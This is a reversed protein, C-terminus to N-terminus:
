RPQPQPLRAGPKELPVERNDAGVVSRGGLPEDLQVTRHHVKAIMVCIRDPWPTATVTVKVQNGSEVATVEYDACVGATFSVTLEDGEATYGDVQVNEPKTASTPADSPTDAAPARLYEPEIAPYAVTYTNGAGPARVEFLWSPVLLPRGGSAHPALGFEADEVTLSQKKPPATSAACLSEQRDKTPVPTACGGIGMRHKGPAANLLELAKEAGLVPYTEGKAPTEMRGSGAVVEGQPSVSLDTTWGFTPVGGVEDDANVLRQAGLVQSADIEADDQGLAKLVPAAAKKAAAESVPDTVPSTSGQTCVAVGGECADTGAAYRVFTWMGPAQQNVRLVPGSGDNGAGVRWADGDAVPTGGVGLAAALRAVEEKTVAGKAWYVPASDPGDPFAGDAKYVVGYPNPEGPAVGNTGGESSGGPATHDDLVLPPPTGDGAPAGATAGRGSGGTADAALYAGGGGVLLVAAAVSAVLVASRHRPVPATDDDAPGSARSVDGAPRDDAAADESPAAVADEAEGAHGADDEPRTEAARTEEARTEEPPAEERTEESRAEEPRAEDPRTEEPRTEEPRTEEARTEDPRADEPRTEETEDPRTEEATDRDEPGRATDDNDPRETNM